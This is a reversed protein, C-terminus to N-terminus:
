DAAWPVEERPAVWDAVWRRTRELDRFHRFMAHKESLRGEQYYLYAEAYYEFDNTRAYLSVPEEEDETRWVNPHAPIGHAEEVARRSAPDTPINPQTSWFERLKETYLIALRNRGDDVAHGTEHTLTQALRKSDSEKSKPWIHVQRKKMDISAASTFIRGIRKSTARDNPNGVPSFVIENIESKMAQLAETSMEPLAKMFSKLSVASEKQVMWPMDFEGKRKVLLNPGAETTYIDYELGTLADKDMSLHDTKGFEQILIDRASM